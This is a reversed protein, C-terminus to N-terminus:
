WRGMRVIGFNSIERLESIRSTGNGALLSDKADGFLADSFREGRVNLISWGV